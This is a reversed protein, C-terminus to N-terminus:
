VPQVYDHALRDGPNAAKGQAALELPAVIVGGITAISIMLAAVSAFLRIGFHNWANRAVKASGRLAADYDRASQRTIVFEQM